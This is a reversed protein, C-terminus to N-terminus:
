RGDARVLCDLTALLYRLDQTVTINAVYKSDLAVRQWPLLANRGAVQWPGTIAPTSDLVEPHSSLIIIKEEVAYPRPGVLSMEGTIVHWFQPLEDISFRRLIAGIRTRRPDKRLKLRERYERALKPKAELLDGLM